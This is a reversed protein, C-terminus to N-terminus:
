RMPSVSRSLCSMCMRGTSSSREGKMCAATSKLCSRYGLLRCSRMPGSPLDDIVISDQAHLSLVKHIDAGIIAFRLEQEECGEAERYAIHLAAGEVMADIVELHCGSQGASCM